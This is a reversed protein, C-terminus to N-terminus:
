NEGELRRIKEVLAVIVEEMTTVRNKRKISTDAVVTYCAEADELKQKLDKNEERLHDIAARATVLDVHADYGEDREKNALDAKDKATKAFKDREAELEVVTKDHDAKFREFESCKDVYAKSLEAYDSQRVYGTLRKKLEQRLKDNEEKLSAIKTKLEDNAEAAESATKNAENYWATLEAIKAKLEENEKQLSDATVTMADAKTKLPGAVEEATKIEEDAVCFPFEAKVGDYAHTKVVYDYWKDEHEVEAIKVPVYATDGKKFRKAM